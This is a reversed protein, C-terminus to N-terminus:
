KFFKFILHYPNKTVIKDILKFSLPTFTLEIKENFLLAKNLKGGEVTLKEIEKGEANVGQEKPFKAQEEQVLKAVKSVDDLIKSLGFKVSISTEETLFSLIEENLQMAEFNNLSVKSM